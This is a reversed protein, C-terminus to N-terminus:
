KEDEQTEKSPWPTEGLARRSPRTGHNLHFGLSREASKRACVAEFFSSEYKIHINKNKLNIYAKWKKKEKNWSVGTVGTTNDNQMRKNRANEIVTVDRLNCFRNDIPIGNIHDIDKNPFSGTMYLWALRHSFYAKKKISIYERIGSGGLDSKCGARKGAYRTNWSACSSYANRRKTSKFMSVCRRKWVFIGTSPNYSLLRKLEKQSIMSVCRDLPQRIYHPLYHCVVKRIATRDAPSNYM